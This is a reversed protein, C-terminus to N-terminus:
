QIKEMATKIRERTDHIENFYKIEDDPLESIKILEDKKFQRVFVMYYEMLLLKNKVSNDLSNFKNLAKVISVFFWTIIGISLAMITAILTIGFLNLM